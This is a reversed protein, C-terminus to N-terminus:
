VSAQLRIAREIMFYTSNWRVGLDKILHLEFGQADVKLARQVAEFAWLRRESRAIYTVINHLHRIAGQKRWIKFAEKDGADQLQKQLASSGEGYLLSKVVLNIIHGFCRLRQEQPDM